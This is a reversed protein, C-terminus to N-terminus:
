CTKKLSFHYGFPLSLLLPCFLNCLKFFFLDPLIFNLGLQTQNQIIYIFVRSVATCKTSATLHPLLVNAQGCM